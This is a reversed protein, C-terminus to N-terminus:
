VSCITPLTLHTYSVARGRGVRWWGWGLAGPCRPRPAWLLLCTPSPPPRSSFRPPRRPSTPPGPWSDVRM